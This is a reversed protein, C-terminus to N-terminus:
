HARVVREVDRRKVEAQIDADVSVLKHKRSTNSLRPLAARKFTAWGM